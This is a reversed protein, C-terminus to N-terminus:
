RILHSCIFLGLRIFMTLPPAMEEVLEKLLRNTVGDPGPASSKKLKGILGKLLQENIWEDELGDIGEYREKEPTEQDSVTFVSAYFENM